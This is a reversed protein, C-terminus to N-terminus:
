RSDTSEYLKVGERGPEAKKVPAKMVVRTGKVPSSEIELQGGIYELREKISFLGFGGEKGSPLGLKSVDFGAGDDEVTVEIENDRKAIGVKVTKAGAHKVINILLECTAKFLVVKIDEDLEIKKDDSTFECKLGANKQIETKLWSKIASELGIEYLLPNSLEFTLSHIDDLIDSILTSESDLAARMNKDSVSAMLTQLRFKVMVLKQGLNDHIGLAIRRREREEALSLESALAKLRKQNNRLKEEAHKRETIDEGSSLIGTIHGAEDRLLTNRWAIIREGGDHKLVPNEFYEVPEIKGTMLQLFVTTVNDRVSEPLFSDFWNKGIIQTEDRGLIECGKKNILTIVGTTDIVMLMVAAIDLYRQAKDKEKRLTEQMHRLDTVNTFFGVNCEEGDIIGKTGTIHTYFITGDKRKCPINAVLIKDGKVQSKFQDIAYELQESPHIDNVGMTTLEAETYGLMRCIAPNAYKFKRNKLDAVLIGEAGAEFFTRFASESERLKEEARKHETIDTAIHIIRNLAGSEDFVPTCSVLFTRDMAEMEMEVTEFRGSKLLKEMPCTNPPENKKHFVEYCKRGIFYENSKGTLKAVANNCAIIKHDPGLIFSPHGIAQFIDEWEGPVASPEAGAKNRKRREDGSQWLKAM